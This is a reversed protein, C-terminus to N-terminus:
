EVIISAPVFKNKSLLKMKHVLKHIKVAYIHVEDGVEQRHSIAEAQVDYIDQINDNKLRYTLNNIISSWKKKSELIKKTIEKRSDTEKVTKDENDSM